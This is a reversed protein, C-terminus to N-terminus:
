RLDTRSASSGDTSGAEVGTFEAAQQSEAWEIMRTHAAVKDMGARARRRSIYEMLNWIAEPRIMEHPLSESAYTLIEVINRM